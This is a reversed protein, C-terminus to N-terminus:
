EEKGGARDMNKVYSGLIGNVFSFDDDGGYKKCLEVAENITVSVPIDDFRMIEGIALQLVALSVRSIRKMDWRKALSAISNNIESRHEHTFFILERAFTSVKFDRLEGALNIIDDINCDSFQAEFNLIFAQERSESRTM